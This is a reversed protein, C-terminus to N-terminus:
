SRRKPVKIKRNELTIHLKYINTRGQGRQQIELFGAAELENLYTRVSREGVGMDAALKVQGPFSYDHHWAYRLLMAYALKAGPSITDAILVFNPVQTFGLRTAQDAGVIEINRQLAALNSGLHEM